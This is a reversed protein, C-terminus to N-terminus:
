FRTNNTERTAKQSRLHGLFAFVWGGSERVKLAPYLSPQVPNAVDWICLEGDAGGSALLNPSFANFELGKVAGGHKQMKALLPQPKQPGAPAAVIASPNWLCISGDALGGAIIGLQQQQQHPINIGYTFVSPRLLM